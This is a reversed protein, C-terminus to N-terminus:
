TSLLPSCPPLSRGLFPSYFLYNHTSKSFAQFPVSPPFQPPIALSLAMQPATCFGLVTSTEQLAYTYSSLRFSTLLYHPFCCGLERKVLTLKWYWSHTVDLQTRQWIGMGHFLVRVWHQGKTALFRLSSLSPVQPFVLYQEEALPVCCCFSEQHREAIGM